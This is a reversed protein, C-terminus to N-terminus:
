HVKEVQVAVVAWWGTEQKEHPHKTKKNSKKVLMFSHIKSSDSAKLPAAMDIYQIQIPAAM